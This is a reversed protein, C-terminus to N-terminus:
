ASLLARLMLLLFGLFSLTISVSLLLLVRELSRAKAENATECHKAAESWAELLDHKLHASVRLEISDHSAYAQRLRAVHRVWHTPGAVIQYRRSLASRGLLLAAASLVGLCGAFVALAATELSSRSGNDLLRGISSTLFAAFVGTLTLFLVGKAHLTGASRQEFEFRDRAEGLLTQEAEGFTPLPLTKQTREDDTSM